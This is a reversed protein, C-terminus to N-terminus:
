LNITINFTLSTACVNHKYGALSSDRHLSSNVFTLPAMGLRSLFTHSQDQLLEWSTDYNGRSQSSKPIKRFAHSLFQLM